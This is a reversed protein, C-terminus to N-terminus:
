GLAESVRAPILAGTFYATVCRNIRDRDEGDIDQEGGDILRTALKMRRVREGLEPAENPLPSVLADAVADGLTLPKGAADDIAKQIIARSGEDLQAAASVLATILTERSGGCRLEQGRLDLIPASFDVQM